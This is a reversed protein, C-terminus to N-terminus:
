EFGLWDPHQQKRERRRNYAQQDKEQHQQQAPKALGQTTRSRMEHQKTNNLPDNAQGLLSSRDV